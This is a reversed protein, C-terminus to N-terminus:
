RIFFKFISFLFIVYFLMRAFLQTSKYFFSFPMFLALSITTFSFWEYQKLFIIEIVGLDRVASRLVLNDAETGGATFVIQSANINFFSAINKRSTELLSKASRGMSHTSSANGYQLQMVETMRAIVADRISTTAANDFYVQRMM